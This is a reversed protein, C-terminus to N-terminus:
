ASQQLSSDSLKLCWKYDEWYNDFIRKSDRSWNIPDLYKFYIKNDGSKGSIFGFFPKVMLPLFDHSHLLLGVNGFEICIEDTLLNDIEKYHNRDNFSPNKHWWNSNNAFLDKIRKSSVQSISAAKRLIENLEEQSKEKEIEPFNDIIQKATDVFWDKVFDEIEDLFENHTEEMKLKLMEIQEQVSIESKIKAPRM